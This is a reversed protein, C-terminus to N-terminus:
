DARATDSPLPAGEGLQRVLEKYLALRHRRAIQHVNNERLRFAAAVREAPWEKLYYHELVVLDIARMRRALVAMARDIADPLENPINAPSAIAAAPEASEHTDAPADLSVASRLRRNRRQLDRARSAVVKGLFRRFSGIRGRTAFGPLTRLLTGFAEQVADDADHHDLGAQRAIRLMVPRYRDHFEGWRDHNKAVSALLSGRTASGPDTCHTPDAM